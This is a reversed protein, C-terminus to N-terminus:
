RSLLTQERSNHSCLLLLYQHYHYYLPFYSYQITIPIYAERKYAPYIIIHPGSVTTFGFSQNSCVKEIPYKVRTVQKFRSIVAVKSYGLFCFNFKCNLHLSM